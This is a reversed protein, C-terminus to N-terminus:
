FTLLRDIRYAKTRSDFRKTNGAVFTFYVGFGGFVLIAFIILAIDKKSKKDLEKHDDLSEMVDEDPVKKLLSSLVIGTVILILYSFLM